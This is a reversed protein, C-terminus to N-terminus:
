GEGPTYSAMRDKEWLFHPVFCKIFGNSRPQVITELYSKGDLLVMVVFVVHGVDGGDGSDFVLLAMLAVLADLAAFVPAVQTGALAAACRVAAVIGGVTMGGPMRLCATM